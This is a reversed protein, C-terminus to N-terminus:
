TTGQTVSKVYIVGGGRTNEIEWTLMRKGGHDM